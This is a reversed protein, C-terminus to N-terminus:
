VNLFHIRYELSFSIIYPLENPSYHEKYIAKGRFFM